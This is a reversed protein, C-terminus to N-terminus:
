FLCYTLEEPTAVGGGFQIGWFPAIGITGGALCSGVPANNVPLCPVPSPFSPCNLFGTVTAAAAAATQSATYTCSTLSTHIPATFAWSAPLDDYHPENISQLLEQGYVADCEGVTDETTIDTVAWYDATTGEGDGVTEIVAWIMIGQTPTPTPTATTFSPGAYVNIYGFGGCQTSGHGPCRYNCNSDDVSSVTTAFEDGCFCQNGDEVGFGSYSNDECVDVCLEVSMDPDTIATGGLIRPDTSDPFCGLYTYGPLPDVTPAPTPGAPTVSSSYVNM